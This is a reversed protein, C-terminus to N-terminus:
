TGSHTNKMHRQLLTALSTRNPVGLKQYSNHLHVKVTGESVNILRAIHKNSLGSAVLTAIERERATLVNELRDIDHRREAERRVAPAVLASPLWREGALVTELCELLTEAAEDKKLIGWAGRTVANLVQEDSASGTLLVVRTRLGEEETTALVELGSLEPMSIDLIALDPALERLGELADRGNLYTNVVNFSGNASLLANLAALVIPHDDAIVVTRESRSFSM